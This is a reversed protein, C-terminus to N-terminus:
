KIYVTVFPPIQFVKTFSKYKAVEIFYTLHRIDMFTIESRHFIYM